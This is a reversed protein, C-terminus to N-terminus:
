YLKGHGITAAVFGEFQKEPPFPTPVSMGRVVAPRELMRNLWDFVNTNEKLPLDATAPHALCMNVWPIFAIDAISFQDGAVFEKGELRINLVKLIRSVEQFYRNTVKPFENEWAAAFVLFQGFMPGIGGMQFMLMEIAKMRDPNNTPLLKGTKEALYILIAGSETIVLGEDRLIPIKSNPNLELIKPNFQEGGLYIRHATYKLDLEELAISIKLGNPTADTYLDIM